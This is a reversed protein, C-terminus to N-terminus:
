LNSQKSYRAITTKNAPKYQKGVAHAVFHCVRRHTEPQMLRNLCGSFAKDRM